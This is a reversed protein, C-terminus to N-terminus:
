RRLLNSASRRALAPLSLLANRFALPMRSLMVRIVLNGYATGVTARYNERIYPISRSLPFIHRSPDTIVIKGHPGAPTNIRKRMLVEDTAILDFRALFALIFCMDTGWGSHYRYAKSTQRLADRRFVGHILNAKGLIEPELLYRRIDEAKESTTTFRAFGRYERVTRGQADTNVITCMWASRRPEARLARVGTEIFWEDWQDDESAWSFFEGSAKELVFFHNAPAGLRTERRHYHVRPDGAAFEEAVTRTGDGPSCDDSVIVEINRYTQATLSELAQRLFDPRDYAPLGVSVLPEVASPNEPNESPEM